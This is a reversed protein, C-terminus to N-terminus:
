LFAQLPLFYKNDIMKKVLNGINALNQYLLITLPSAIPVTLEIDGNYKRYIYTPPGVRARPYRFLGSNVASRNM